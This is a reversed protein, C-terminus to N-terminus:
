RHRDAVQKVFHKGEYANVYTRWGYGPIGKPYKGLVPARGDKREHKPYIPSGSGSNGQDAWYATLATSGIVVRKIVGKGSVGVLANSDESMIHFTKATKGTKKPCAQRLEKLITDAETRMAKNIIDTAKSVLSM